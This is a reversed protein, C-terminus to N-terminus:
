SRIAIGNCMSLVGGWGRLEQRIKYNQPCVTKNRYCQLLSSPIMVIMQLNNVMRWVCCVTFQM